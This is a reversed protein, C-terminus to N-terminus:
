RILLWIIGIPVGVGLILVGALLGVAARRGFNLTYGVGARAPVFLRTDARNVYLVKLRWCPSDHGAHGTPRGIRRMGRVGTAISLAIAAVLGLGYARGLGGAGAEWLSALQVAALAQFGIWVLSLLAVAEAAATMRRDHDLDNPEGPGSGSVPALPSARHLVIAGIAGFVIALALQIVVPMMVLAWSKLVWRDPIGGRGFHVPLMPVLRSYRASLYGATGAITAATAIMALSTLRTVRTTSTTM